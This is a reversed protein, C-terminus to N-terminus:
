AIEDINQKKKKTPFKIKDAIKQSPGGGGQLISFCSFAKAGGGGGKRLGPCAM